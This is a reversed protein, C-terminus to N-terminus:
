EVVHLNVTYEGGGNGHGPGGSGQHSHCYWELNEGPLDYPLATSVDENGTLFGALSYTQNAGEAPNWIASLFGEDAGGQHPFPINAPNSNNSHIRHSNTEDSNAIFFITGTKIYIDEHYLNSGNLDVNNALHYLFYPSVELTVDLSKEDKGDNAAVTFSTSALPGPATVSGGEERGTDVVVSEFVARFQKAAPTTISIDTIQAGQSDLFTVLIDSGLDTLASLQLTGLYGDRPEVNFVIESTEGIDMFADSSGITSLVYSPQTTPPKPTSNVEPDTEITTPGGCALSWSTVMALFILLSSQKTKNM